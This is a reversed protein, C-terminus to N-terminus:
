KNSKNHEQKEYSHAAEIIGNLENSHIGRNVYDPLKDLGKNTIGGERKLKVNSFTSTINHDAMLETLLTKALEYNAQRNIGRSGAFFWFGHSYDSQYSEVREIYAKLQDVLPLIGIIKQTKEPKFADELLDVNNLSASLTLLQDTVMFSSAYEAFSIYLERVLDAKIVDFIKKTAINQDKTDPDNLNTLKFGISIGEEGSINRAPRVIIQDCGLKEQLYAEYEFITKGDILKRTQYSKDLALVPRYNSVIPKQENPFDKIDAPKNYAEGTTPNILQVPPQTFEYVGENNKVAYFFGDPSKYTQKGNKNATAVNTCNASLGPHGFDGNFDGGFVHEVESPNINNKKCWAEFKKLSATLYGEIQDPLPSFEAHVNWVCLHQNNKNTFLTIQAGLPDENLIINRQSVNPLGTNSFLTVSDNTGIQTSGAKLEQRALVFEKEQLQTVIDQTIELFSNETTKNKALPLIKSMEQLLVIDAEKTEAMLSIGSVLTDRSKKSRAIPPTNPDHNEPTYPLDTAAQDAGFINYSLFKKEGFNKTSITTIIPAHDSLYNGGKAETISPLIDPLYSRREESM